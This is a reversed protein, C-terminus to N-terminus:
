SVVDYQSGDHSSRVVYARQQATGPGSISAPGIMAPFVKTLATV